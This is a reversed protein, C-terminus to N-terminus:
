RPDRARHITEGQSDADYYLAVKRVLDIQGLFNEEAGIPLHLPVPKAKLRDKIM